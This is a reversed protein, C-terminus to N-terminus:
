DFYSGGKKLYGFKTGPWKLKLPIRLSFSDSSSQMSIQVFKLPKAVAYQVNAAEKLFKM